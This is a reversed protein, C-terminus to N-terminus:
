FGRIRKGVESDHESTDIQFAPGISNFQAEVSENKLEKAKTLFWPYQSDTMILLDREM